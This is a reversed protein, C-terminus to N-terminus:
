GKEIWNKISPEAKGADTGHIALGKVIESTPCLKKLDNESRGMGSGEHTCFPLIIKKNFDYKELFTWVPMPMTCWWNPYGLFIVDYSEIDINKVLEPRSNARLESQAVVTCKNYDTPYEQVSEIKFADAGVLGAIMKGVIETNGIPLDVIKGNSYNQGNRSFYAVLVKKSKLDM